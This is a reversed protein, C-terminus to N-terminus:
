VKGFTIEAFTFDIRVQSTDIDACEYKNNKRLSYISSPWDTDNSLKTRLKSGNEIIYHNVLLNESKPVTLEISFLILQRVFQPQDILYM